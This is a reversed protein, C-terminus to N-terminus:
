MIKPPKDVRYQTSKAPFMELRLAKEKKM